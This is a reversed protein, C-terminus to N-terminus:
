PFFLFVFAIIRFVWVFLWVSTFFIYSILSFLNDNFFIYLNEICRSLVAIVIRFTILFSLIVFFVSFQIRLESSSTMKLLVDNPKVKDFPLLSWLGLLLFLCLFFVAWSRSTKKCKACFCLACLHSCKTVNLICFSFFLICVCGYILYSFYWRVFVCKAVDNCFPIMLLFILLLPFILSVHTFYISLLFFFVCVDPSFPM